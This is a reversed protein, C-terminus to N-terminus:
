DPSFKAFFPLVAERYQQAMLRYDVHGGPNTRLEVRVGAAELVQYYHRSGDVIFQNEETLGYEIVVGDLSRLGDGWREIKDEIGAFGRYWLEAQARDMVIQGQDDLSFPYALFPYESQGAYALGYSLRVAMPDYTDLSQLAEWPSRAEQALNQLFELTQLINADTGWIYDAMGESTALAGNYVYLASFVHPHGIAVSFAGQGGTAYGTLFRGSRDARTRYRNDVFEVLEQALFSDWDGLVASNAYFTSPVGMRGDVLVLIMPILEGTAMAQGLARVGMERSFEELSEGYGALAYVVPYRTETQDYGPPVQVMVRREGALGLLNDALADSPVVSYEIRAGALTTESLVQGSNRQPVSQCSAMLILGIFGGSLITLCKKYFPRVVEKLNEM